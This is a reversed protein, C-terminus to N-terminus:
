QANPFATKKISITSYGHLSILKVNKRFFETYKCVMNITHKITPEMCATAMPMAMPITDTAMMPDTDMARAM